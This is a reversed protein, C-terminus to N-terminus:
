SQLGGVCHWALPGVDMFDLQRPRCFLSNLLFEPSNLVTLIFTELNVLNLWCLVFSRTESLELNPCESAKEKM